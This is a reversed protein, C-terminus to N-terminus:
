QNKEKFTHVRLAALFVDKADRLVMPVLKYGGASTLYLGFKLLKNDGLLLKYASV